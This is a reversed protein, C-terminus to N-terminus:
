NRTPMFRMYKTRITHTISIHTENIIHRVYFRIFYIAFGQVIILLFYLM